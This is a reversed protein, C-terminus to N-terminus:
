RLKNGVDPDAVYIRDRWAVRGKSLGCHNKFNYILSAMWLNYYTEISKPYHKINYVVIISTSPKMHLLYVLIIAYSM